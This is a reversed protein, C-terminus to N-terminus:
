RWREPIADRAAMFHERLLTASRRDDGGIAPDDVLTIIEGGHDDPLTDPVARVIQRCALMRGAMWAFPVLAARAEDRHREAERLRAILSLIAAPNASAIYAANAESTPGCGTTAPCKGGANLLYLHDGVAETLAVQQLLEDGARSRDGDIREAWVDWPGPTAEQAARELADLDPATM